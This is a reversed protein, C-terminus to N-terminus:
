RLPNGAPGSVGVWTDKAADWVSVYANNASLGRQPYARFDYVGNTSAFDHLDAIFARIQEATATPGLQRLAQVVIEGPDWATVGLIDPRLSMPALAESFRKIAVKQKANNVANTASIGTAPFLLTKPASVAMAKMQLYTANAPSIGVPVGDLGADRIGRLATITPTGASWVIIADPAAAKIRALQAAVSLDAIAFHERAVISMSRNEPTDAFKDISRDGDQGSADTTTLVAVRRLNKQRLYRMLAGVFELAPPNTAFQFSGAPPVIASSMCYAVPGGKAVLPAIASCMAVLSPGLFVAVKKAVLDNALQVSVQPSSQDDHFVFKLPRGKIGGTENTVRELAQLASVESQGAFGAAGTQSVLVDLEYPDAGRAVGPIAFSVVVLLALFRGLVSGM